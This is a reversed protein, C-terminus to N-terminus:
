DKLFPHLPPNSTAINGVINSSIREISPHDRRPHCSIALLMIDVDVFIAPFIFLRFIQKQNIEIGSM